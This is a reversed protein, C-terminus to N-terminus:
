ILQKSAKVLYKLIESGNIDIKKDKDNLKINLKDNSLTYSAIDFESFIDLCILLKAYNMNNKAEYRIKRYTQSANIDRTDRSKLHRFVSILEERTPCMLQAEKSTISVNGALKAYVELLAKDYTIENKSFKIDKIVLQVNQVGRFDNIDACFAVDVFDGATFLCESFSMGFALGTFSKENKKLQIKMHKDKGIPTLLTIQCCEMAFIPQSNGMGFPEMVELSKIEGLTLEEPPVECDITITPVIVESQMIKKAYENIRKRFEPLNQKSITFGVALEHGGFKELLDSTSELAEYLNFGKVSRGSGKGVGDEMSVLITPVYYKEVLKSAVIGIVGNHWEEGWLVISKDINKNFNDDINEVIEEFISLETMQRQVNLECLADAYEAATDDSSTLLLKAAQVAGGLRGAANIRPALMFSVMTANINKGWINLKKMLAILGRNKSNQLVKLGYTVMKRNEGVLPMVDAITGVAVIDGYIEMLQEWSKKDELACILKFAVGVGALEKFPYECGDRRPNVVAVAKPLSGKCEHHDTIIVRMGLIAAYEVESAATVGCDVTILLRVGADALSKIAQINLGYGESIRDPIYYECEIGCSLFYKKLICTSTVGDVDYDGYIAIKEGLKMANKIEKVAILMDSMLYPDYINYKSLDLFNEVQLKTQMGRALLVRQTLTGFQCNEIEKHIDPFRPLIEWKKEKM